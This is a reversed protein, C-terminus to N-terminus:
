RFKQALQQAEAQMEPALGGNLAADLETRAEATRGSAHLVVALHYRIEASGPERLRADRLLQLARDRAAANGSQFLAWGLTDLAFANGAALAVAREAVAVAGPDQLRLLVNALNNLAPVDDPARKLLAEYAVKAAAFQGSAAHGDALGRRARLDNPQGRLWEELVQSAAKAQAQASLQRALRLASDSTPEVQHARRYAELAAQPQGRSREVDGLLTHGIARRPHLQAMQRARQEARGLQGQRLDLDVQMALAALNTPEASLVKELSYAVGEPHNADMQLTAIQLNPGAAYGAARSAGSLTTRANVADGNALLARAMALVAQIDDGAKTELTRAAELAQPARGERLHLDVLGLGPRMENRGALDSARQLLRLREAADGRVQALAALEMLVDVSKDHKRLLANLRADAADLQRGAIDLRALHLQPAAWEPDLAAAREFAARAPAIRGAQALAMGLLDHHGARDPAQDVLVKAIEAAAQPRGNRLHMGALTVGAQVQRRDKKWAAELAAQAQDAQGSSLLGIGLMTQHEPREGTRLAEQMLSIARASRGQAMHAGALMTLAQGDDPRAKLYAELVSIARAPEGDMLYIQALLRAVPTNPQVQQLVELYGRAKERENLEYHALGNLLLLQPRYRVAELPVPDLLDTVKKLADRMAAPQGARRALVARLFAARPESPLLKQVADLDRAADADRQLDVYLGARAILAEAHQGDLALARDYATLATSVDLQAHALAGRQYLVEASRPDLAQARDIAVVAEKFQRTRIRIPVEALWVDANRPAMAAADAVLQLGARPDGLDSAASARLLLMQVQVAQPLGAMAFLPQEQLLRHKGLALYTTALPVVVEARNVGLRLAEQLAVEAALVEGNALLARGLLLQVPLMSKDIQLANKLQIIAGPLDRQEYRTLADEYYRSAKSDAAGAPVTAALLAALCLVRCRSRIALPHSPM